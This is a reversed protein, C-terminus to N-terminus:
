GRNRFCDFKLYLNKSGFLGVLCIIRFYLLYIGARTFKNVEMDPLSENKLNEMMYDLPKSILHVRCQTKGCGSSAVNITFFNIVSSQTTWRGRTTPGCLSAVFPLLTGMQLSVPTNYERYMLDHFKHVFNPLYKHWKYDINFAEQYVRDSFTSM